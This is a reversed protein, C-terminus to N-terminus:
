PVDQKIRGKRFRIVQGREFRLDILKIQDREGRLRKSEEEEMTPAEYLCGHGKRVMFKQFFLNDACKGDIHHM